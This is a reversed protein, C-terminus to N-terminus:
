VELRYYDAQVLVAVNNAFTATAGNHIQVALYDAPRLIVQALGFTIGFSQSQGLIIPGQSPLVCQLAAASSTKRVYGGSLTWNTNGAALVPVAISMNTLLWMEGDPVTIGGSFLGAANINVTTNQAYRAADQLYLPTADYGVFLTPSIEHPLDGTGKMALASLLGRAVRQITLPGAM